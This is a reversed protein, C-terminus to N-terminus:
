SGGFCKIVCTIDFTNCNWKDTVIVKHCCSSCNQRSQPSIRTLQRKFYFNKICHKYNLAEGKKILDVRMTAGDGGCHVMHVLAVACLTRFRGPGWHATRWDCVFSWGELHWKGWRIKMHNLTAKRPVQVAKWMLLNLYFLHVVRQLSRGQPQHAVKKEGNARGVNNREAPNYLHFCMRSFSVWRRRVSYDFWWGDFAWILSLIVARPINKVRKMNLLSLMQECLTHEKCIM